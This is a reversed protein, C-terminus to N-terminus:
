RSSSTPIKAKATPVPKTAAADAAPSVNAATQQQQQQNPYGQYMLSEQMSSNMFSQNQQQPNAVLSPYGLQSQRLSQTPGSLIGSNAISDYVQSQRLDIHGGQPLHDNPRYNLPNKPMVAAKDAFNMKNMLINNIPYNSRVMDDYGYLQTNDLSPSVSSKGYPSNKFNNVYNLMKEKDLVALAEYSLPASRTTMAKMAVQQIARRFADAQRRNPKQTLKTFISLGIVALETSVNLAPNRDAFSVNTRSVKEETADIFSEVILTFNEMIPEWEQSNYNFVSAELTLNLDKFGSYDSNQMMSVNIPLVTLHVMPLNTNFIDDLMTVTVGQVIVDLSSKNIKNITPNNETLSHKLITKIHAEYIGRFQMQAIQKLESEQLWGLIYDVFETNVLLSIAGIHAVGRNFNMENYNDKFKYQRTQYAVFTPQMINRSIGLTSDRAVRAKIYDMLRSSPVFDMYANNLAASMQTVPIIKEPNYDNLQQFLEDGSYEKPDFYNVLENNTVIAKDKPETGIFFSVEQVHLIISLDKGRPSVLFVFVDEINITMNFIGINKKLRPRILSNISMEETMTTLKLIATIVPILANVGFKRVTLNIFQGEGSTKQIIDIFFNAESQSDLIGVVEHLKEAISKFGVIDKRLTMNEYKKDNKKKNRRQYSASPGAEGSGFVEMKKLEKLFPYIPRTEGHVGNSTVVDGDLGNGFINIVQRRDSTMKIDIYFVDFNFSFFENGSDDSLSASIPQLLIRIDQPM